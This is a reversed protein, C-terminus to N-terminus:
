SQHGAERGPQLECNGAGSRQERRTLGFTVRWASFVWKIVVLRLTVLAM